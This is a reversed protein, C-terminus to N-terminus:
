QISNGEPPSIELEKNKLDHHLIPPVVGKSASLPRSSPQKEGDLIHALNKRSQTKSNVTQAERM